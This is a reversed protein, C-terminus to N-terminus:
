YRLRLINKPLCVRTYDKTTLPNYSIGLGSLESKKVPQCNYSECEANKTCITKDLKEDNEGLIEDIKVEMEESAVVQNEEAVADEGTDQNFLDDSSQVYCGKGDSCENHNSCGQIAPDMVSDDIKFCAFKGGDVAKQEHGAACKFNTSNPDQLSKIQIYQTPSNAASSTNCTVSMEIVGSIMEGHVAGGSGSLAANIANTQAVLPACLGSTLQAHVSTALLSATLFSFLYLAKM